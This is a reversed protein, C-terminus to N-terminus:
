KRTIKELPVVITIQTGTDNKIEYKGGLAAIRHHINKLGNGMSVTPDFGKGDDTAVITLHSSDVNVQISFNMANSHKMVNQMIEKMASLLNRIATNKLIFEPVKESFEVKPKISTEQFYDGAFERIRILLNELTNNAPPLMWILDRMTDILHHATSNIAKVKSHFREDIKIAEMEEALFRIKSLGSGLDDHIDKAVRNREQDETEKIALLRKEEALAKEKRFLFIGATLVIVFLALGGSIMYNKRQSILKQRGLELRNIEEQQELLRITNEKKETEYKMNLEYVDTHMNEFFISDHFALFNQYADILRDKDGEKEAIKILSAYYTLYERNSALQPLLKHARDLHDNAEALDNDTMFVQSLLSLIKFQNVPMQNEIAIQLGNQLHQKAEATHNLALHTAGLSLLIEAQLFLKQNQVAIEHAKEFVEIASAHDNGTRYVEGLVQYTGDLLHTLNNTEAIRISELCYYKSKELNHIRRFHAALNGLVVVQAIFDNKAELIRLGILHYDMGKVFDGADALTKGINVNSYAIGLSDGIQTRAVLAKQHADIADQFQALDYYINGLNNYANGLGHLNKLSDHIHISKELYAIGEDFRGSKRLLKALNSYVVALGNQDKVAMKDKVSLLYYKEAEEPMGSNELLLAHTNYCSSRLKLYGKRTTIEIAETSYPLGKKPNVSTYEWALDDLYVAKTSDDKAAAIKQELEELLTQAGASFTFLFCLFVIAPNFKKKLM